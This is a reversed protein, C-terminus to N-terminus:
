EKYFLALSPIKYFSSSDSGSPYYEFPDTVWPPYDM